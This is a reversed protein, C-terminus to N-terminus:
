GMRCIWPQPLFDILRLSLCNNSIFILQILRSEERLKSYSERIIIMETHLSTCAKLLNMFNIRNRSLQLNSIVEKGDLDRSAHAPIKIDM